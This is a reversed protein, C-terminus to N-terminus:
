DSISLPLPVCARVLYFMCIACIVSGWLLPKRRGLIDVFFGLFIVSAVAKLAGYIGTYLSTQTVGISTFIRPSYYNIANTGVMNQFMM